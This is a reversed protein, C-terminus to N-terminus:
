TPCAATSAVLADLEREDLQVGLRRHQALEDAVRSSARGALVVHLDGVEDRHAVVAGVAQGAVGGVPGHLGAAADAVRRWMGNSCM